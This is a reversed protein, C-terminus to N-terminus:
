DDGQSESHTNNQLKSLAQRAHNENVRAEAHELGENEQEDDDKLSSSSSSSSSSAISSSSSFLSSSSDSSSGSSVSSSSSSPPISSSQSSSSGSSVSSSSSSSSTILYPIMRTVDTGHQPQYIATMDTGCTFINGGTHSTQLSTVDYQLGFLTIICPTAASAPKVTKAALNWVFFSSIIVVGVSLFIKRSFSFFIHKM